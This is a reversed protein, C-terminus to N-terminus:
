RSIDKTVRRGDMKQTRALVIAYREVLAWRKTLVVFAQRQAHELPIPPNKGGLKRFMEMDGCANPKCDAMAQEYSMRRFKSLWIAEGVQGAASAVLWGPLTEETPAECMTVGAVGQGSIWVKIDGVRTGNVADLIAHAAEHVGAETLQSTRVVGRFYDYGPLDEKYEGAM